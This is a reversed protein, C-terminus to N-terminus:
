RASNGNVATHVTIDGSLVWAAGDNVSYLYTGYTEVNVVIVGVAGGITGNYEAPNFQNVDWFAVSASVDIDTWSAGSNVSRLIHRTNNGACDVGVLITGQTSVFVGAIAPTNAIPLAQATYGTGWVHTVFNNRIDALFIRATNTPDSAIYELTSSPVASYDIVPITISSSSGDSLMKFLFNLYLLGLTLPNTVVIQLPSAPSNVALPTSSEVQSTFANTYYSAAVLVYAGSGDNVPAVVVARPLPPYFRLNDPDQLLTDDCVKFLISQYAGGGDAYQLIYGLDPSEGVGTYYAGGYPPSDASTVTCFITTWDTTTPFVTQNANGVVYPVTAGDIVMRTPLLEGIYDLLHATFTQGGNTSRYVYIPGWATYWATYSSLVGALSHQGTLGTNQAALAAKETAGFSSSLQYSVAWAISRNTPDVAVNSGRGEILTNTVTWSVGENGSYGTFVNVGASEDAIIAQKSTSTVSHGSAYYNAAYNNAWDNLASVVGGAAALSTLHRIAGSDYLSFIHVPVVGAGTPRPATPPSIIPNGGPPTIPNPPAGATWCDGNVGIDPYSYYDCTLTPSMVGAEWDFSVSVRRVILLANALLTGRKTVWGTSPAQVYEQYAPDFAKVWNGRMPIVIDGYPMNDTGVLLGALTNADTQDVLALFQLSREEGYDKPPRGPSMGYVPQIEDAPNGSYSIGSLCLFRTKWYPVLPITVQEQWDGHALQCVTAYAGRSAIPTLNPDRGVIIRGTRTVGSRLMRRAKAFQVLMNWMNDEPFPGHKILTSDNYLKADAIDQITTHFKLFFNMARWVTLSTSWAWADPEGAPDDDDNTAVPQTNTRAMAGAISELRFEVENYEPRVAVSGEAIYGFMVVQERGTPFGVSGVTTGYTDTSILFCPAREPFLTATISPDFVRVQANWGDEIQGELSTGEFKVTYVSAPDPLSIIRRTLHTKGNTDTVTLTAYYTGAATYNRNGPTMVASTGGDGFTWAYSAITDGPEVTYSESGDFYVSTPNGEWLKCVNDGMMAVPPWPNTQNTYVIGAVASADLGYDKYIVQGIARQNLFWPLYQELVTLYANDTWVIDSNWAVFLNSASASARIRLTGYDSTGASSGILLTMGQKITGFAGTTVTDYPIVTAGIAPSGNIRAAFIAVPPIPCCVWHSKHPQSRLLALQPASLAPM